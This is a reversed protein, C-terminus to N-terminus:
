ISKAVLSAKELVPAESKRWDAYTAIAPFRLIEVFRCAEPHDTQITGAVCTWIQGLIIASSLIYAQRFAIVWHALNMCFRLRVYDLQRISRWLMLYLARHLQTKPCSSKWTAPLGCIEVQGGAQRKKPDEVKVQCSCASYMGFMFRLIRDTLTQYMRPKSKKINPHMNKKSGWMCQNLFPYKHNVASVGDRKGNHCKKLEWFRPLRKWTKPIESFNQDGVFHHKLNTGGMCYLGPIGRALM